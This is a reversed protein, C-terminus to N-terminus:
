VQREAPGFITSFRLIKTDIKSQILKESNWNTKAYLSVPNTSSDEYCLEEKEM